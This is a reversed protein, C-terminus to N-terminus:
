SRAPGPRTRQQEPSEAQKVLARLAAVDLRAAYARGFVAAIRTTGAAFTRAATDRLKQKEEPALEPHAAVMEETDKKAILPLLSMISGARALRTGLAVAEASPVAAQALAIAALIM